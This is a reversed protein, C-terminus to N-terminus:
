YQILGTIIAIWKSDRGGNMDFVGLRVLTSTTSLIVYTPGYLTYCKYPSPIIM